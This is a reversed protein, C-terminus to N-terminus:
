RISDSRPPSPIGEGEEIVAEMPTKMFANRFKRIKGQRAQEVASFRAESMRAFIHQIFYNELRVGRQLESLYSRQEPLTTM